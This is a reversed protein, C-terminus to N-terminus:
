DKQTLSSLIEDYQDATKKAIEEGEKDFMGFCTPVFAGTSIGSKKLNNRWIASAICM